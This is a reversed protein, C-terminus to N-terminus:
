VFLDESVQHLAATMGGFFGNVLLREADFQSSLERLADTLAAAETRPRSTESPLNECCLPNPETVAPMRLSPNTARESNPRPLASVM